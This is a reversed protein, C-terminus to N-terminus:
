AFVSQLLTRVQEKKDDCAVARKVADAALANIIQLRGAQLSQAAAANCLCLTLLM